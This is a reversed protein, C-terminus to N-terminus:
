WIKVKWIKCFYLLVTQNYTSSFSWSINELNLWKQAHLTASYFLYLLYVWDAVSWWAGNRESCGFNSVLLGLKFYSWCRVMLGEGRWSTILNYVFFYKLLVLLPTQLNKVYFNKWVQGKGCLLFTKWFITLIQETWFTKCFQAIDFILKVIWLLIIKLDKTKLIRAIYLVFFDACFSRGCLVEEGGERLTPLVYYLVAYLM